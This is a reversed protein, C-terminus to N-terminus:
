RPTPRNLNRSPEITIYASNNTDTHTRTQTVRAGGKDSPLLATPRAEREEKKKDKLLYIVEDGEKYTVAKATDFDKMATEVKKSEADALKQVNAAGAADGVKNLATNAALDVVLKGNVTSATGVAANAFDATIGAIALGLSGCIFNRRTLM